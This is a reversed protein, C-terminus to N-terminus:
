VVLLSLYYAKAVLGTTCYVTTSYTERTWTTATEGRIIIDYTRCLTSGQTKKKNKDVLVIANYDVLYSDILSRCSLKHQACQRLTYMSYIYITSKISSVTCYVVAAVVVVVVYPRRRQLMGSERKSITGREIIVNCCSSTGCCYVVTSYM